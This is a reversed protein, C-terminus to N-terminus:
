DIFLMENSALLPIRAQDALTPARGDQTFGGGPGPQSVGDPNDLLDAYPPIVQKYRLSPVARTGSLSLTRGGPQVALSNAPAYAHDPDHCSACALKGSGSLAKDFFM